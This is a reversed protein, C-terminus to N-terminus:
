GAAQVNTGPTGPPTLRGTEPGAQNVINPEVVARYRRLHGCSWGVLSPFALKSSKSGATLGCALYNAGRRVPPLIERLAM